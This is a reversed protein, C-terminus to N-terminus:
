RPKGARGAAWRRVATCSRISLFPSRKMSVLYNYEPMQVLRHLVQKDGGAWGGTVCCRRWRAPRVHAAGLNMTRLDAVTRSEAGRRDEM